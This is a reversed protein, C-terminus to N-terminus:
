VSVQETWFAKSIRWFNKIKLMRYHCCNHEPYMNPFKKKQLLIALVNQYPRFNELFM